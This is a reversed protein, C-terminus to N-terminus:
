SPAVMVRRGDGTGESETTVSPNDSLYLHVVRRESSNMPPMEVTRRERVAKRATRHAMGQIAEVRRQRYGEADLVIRKFFSREKFAAVNVLYQLADITEGKKGIFLATDVSAVDVGIFGGADYVEVLADFKMADLISSVLDKVEDLLEQPVEAPESGSSERYVDAQASAEPSAVSESPETVPPEADGEDNPVASLPEDEEVPVQSPALTTEVLIRADRAGIGLFGSNGEDLVSYSIEQGPLGLEDAAKRVAEDLTAAYFERVETM